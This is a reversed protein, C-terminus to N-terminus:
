NWKLGGSPETLFLVFVTKPSFMPSRLLIFLVFTEYSESFNGIKFTALRSIGVVWELIYGPCGAGLVFIYGPCGAGPVFVYGPCGPVFISWPSEARPVFIYWLSFARPVLFYRLAVLGSNGHQLM